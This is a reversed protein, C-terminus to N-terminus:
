TGSHFYGGNTNGVKLAKGISVFQREALHIYEDSAVVVALGGENSRQKVNLLTCLERGAVDAKTLSFRSDLQGQFAVAL